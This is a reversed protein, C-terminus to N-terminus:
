VNSFRFLIFIIDEKQKQSKKGKIVKWMKDGDGNREEWGDGSMVHLPWLKKGGEDWVGM